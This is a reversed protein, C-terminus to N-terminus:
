TGLVENIATTKAGASKANFDANAENIGGAQGKAQFKGVNRAKAESEASAANSTKVASAISSIGVVAAVIALSEAGGKGGNKPFFTQSVGSVDIGSAAGIAGTLVNFGEQRLGEPSLNRLNSVLGAAALGAQLPNNFGTGQTIFGFLQSATGLIDGLGGGNLASPTIDYHATNGFGKPNGNAGTEVNGRSYFVSEYMVTITNIMTTTGDSSDVTDHQWDSIIPNVLTYTTFAKRAMQSIQINQFFPVTQNNDLGYSYKNAGAGKYTSDGAGAKNYAGPIEKYNGDAFNYRYYAELLATTVGYNDDHFTITVPNYKIATQVNKKRNYKNKTEIDASFKPLEASKVLMGIELEHKSKLEPLVSAASPDMQFFCHYLFKQHPALKQNETVFLRSAHAYDGLNGKPSLAGSAVSDLFGNFASAM